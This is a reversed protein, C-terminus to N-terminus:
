GRMYRRMRRANFVLSLQLAALGIFIATFQQHDMLVGFILPSIAQGIDLGAYVIGYVRGSANAPTARKILLDRSPGASGVAFGMLGFIVPV